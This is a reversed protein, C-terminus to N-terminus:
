SSPSFLQTSSSDIKDDSFKRFDTFDELSAKSLTLKIRAIDLIPTNNDKKSTKYYIEHIIKM